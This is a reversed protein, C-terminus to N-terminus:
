RGVGMAAMTNLGSGAAAGSVGEISVMICQRATGTVKAYDISVDDVGFSSVTGEILTNASTQDLVSIVIDDSLSQTNSPNSTDELSICVSGERTGDSVGMGFAGQDGSNTFTDLSTLNSFFVFIFGPKFTMGSYSQVGPSTPTAITQVHVGLSGADISLTGVDQTNVSNVHDFGSADVNNFLTANDFSNADTTDVANATSMGSTVNASATSGTERIANSFNNTGDSVGAAIQINGFTSTTIGAKAIGYAFILDSEQGITTINTTGSGESLFEEVVGFDASPFMAVTAMVARANTTDVSIRVGDTIFDSHSVEINASDSGPAFLAGVKTQEIFVRNDMPTVNDDARVLMSSETTGDTWGISIGAFLEPTGTSTAYSLLLIYGAMPGAASITFDQTGVTTRLAAAAVIASM